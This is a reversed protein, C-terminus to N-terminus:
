ESCLKQIVEADNEKGLRETICTSNLRLITELAKMLGAAGEEKLVTEVNEADDCITTLKDIIIAFVQDFKAAFWVPDAECIESLM